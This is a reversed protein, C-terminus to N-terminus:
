KHNRILDALHEDTRRILRESLMRKIEGITYYSKGSLMSYSILGKSRLRQLTRGSIKLFKCVDFSDVWEDDPNRTTDAQQQAIFKDITKVILNLKTTLERYVPTEITIVEM